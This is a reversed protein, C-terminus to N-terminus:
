SAFRPLGAPGPRAREVRASALRSDLALVGKDDALLPNLDVERVQPLDAALQALKVLVLAVATEDAAPVNRSAKLQRAVRTGAILARALTLDLPPLALAKDNVIEVATGGQGFAIVPGFTPDDAIGAI